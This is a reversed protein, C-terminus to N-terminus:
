LNNEKDGNLSKSLESSLEVLKPLLEEFTDATVYPLANDDCWIDLSKMDRGEKQRHNLYTGVFSYTGGLRKKGHGEGGEIILNYPFMFTKTFKYIRNKIKM